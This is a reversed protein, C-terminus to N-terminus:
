SHLKRSNLILTLSIKLMIHSFNLIQHLKLEIDIFVQFFNSPTHSFKTTTDIFNLSFFNWGDKMEQLDAYCGDLKVYDVKWQAFTQADESM